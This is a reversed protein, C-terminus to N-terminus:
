RGNKDGIGFTIVFVIAMCLADTFLDLTLKDAFNHKNVAIAFDWYLILFIVFNFKSIIRM